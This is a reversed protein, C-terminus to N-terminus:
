PLSLAAPPVTNVFFVGVPRHLKGDRLGLGLAAPRICTGCATCWDDIHLQKLGRCCSGVNESRGECIAVNADVEAKQSCAWPLPICMIVLRGSWAAQCRSVIGGALPKM